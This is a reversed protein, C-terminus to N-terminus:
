MEGKKKKKKFKQTLSTLSNFKLEQQMIRTHKCSKKKKKKKHSTVFNQDFSSKSLSIEAEM